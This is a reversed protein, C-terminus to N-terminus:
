LNLPSFPLIKLGLFCVQLYMSVVFPLLSRGSRDPDLDLAPGIVRGLTLHFVSLVYMLDQFCICNKGLYKSM